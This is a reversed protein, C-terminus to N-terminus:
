QATDRAAEVAANAADRTSAVRKSYANLRATLADQRERMQAVIQYRPPLKEGRHQRADYDALASRTEREVIDGTCLAADTVNAGTAIVNGSRAMSASVANESLRMRERFGAMARDYSDNDDVNIFHGQLEPDGFCSTQDTRTFPVIFARAALVDAQSVGGDLLLREDPSFPREAESSALESSQGDPAAPNVCGTNTLPLLCALSRMTNMAM